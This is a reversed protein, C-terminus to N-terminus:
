RPRRLLGLMGLSGLLMATPEPVANLQVFDVEFKHGPADTGGIPDFRLYRIDDATFTSINSTVTFFGDGSDVATASGTGITIAGTPTTGTNASNLVVNISTNAWPTVVTM